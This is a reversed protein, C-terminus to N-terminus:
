SRLCRIWSRRRLCLSLSVAVGYRSFSPSVRLSLVAALETCEGFDVVGLCPHSVFVVLRVKAREDSYLESDFGLYMADPERPETETAAAGRLFSFYMEYDNIDRHGMADTREGYDGPTLSPYSYADCVEVPGVEGATPAGAAAAAEAAEVLAAADEDSLMEWGNAGEVWVTDDEATRTEAVTSKSSQPPMGEEVSGSGSSAAADGGAYEAKSVPEVSNWARLGAATLGATTSEGYGMDQFNLFAKPRGYLYEAVEVPLDAKQTGALMSAWSAHDYVAAGEQAMENMRLFPQKTARLVDMFSACGALPTRVASAEQFNGIVRKLGPQTEPRGLLTVGMMAEAKDPQHTHQWVHFAAVVAMFLTGGEGQALSALTECIHPPLGVNTEVWPGGRYWVSHRIASECPVGSKDPLPATAAGNAFCARASEKIATAWTETPFVSEAQWLAFDPYHIPPPMEREPPPLGKQVNHMALYAENLDTWFIEDSYGDFISHHMGYFFYWKTPTVRLLYFHALPGLGGEKPGVGNHRREMFPNFPEFCGDFKYLEEAIGVAKAEKEADTADSLMDEAVLDREVLPLVFDEVSAVQFKLEGDAKTFHGRLAEHRAHVEWLAAKFWERQFPTGDDGDTIWISYSVTQYNSPVPKGGTPAPGGLMCTTNWGPMPSAIQWCHINRWTLSAASRAPCGCCLLCCRSLVYKRDSTRPALALDYSTESCSTLCSCTLCSCLSALSPLRPRDEASPFRVAPGTAHRPMIPLPGAAAGGDSMMAAVAAAIESVVPDKFLVSTPVDLEFMSKIEGIIAMGSLSNGGYELWSDGLDLPARVKRRVIGLIREPFPATPSDAPADYEQVPVSPLGRRKLKGTATRPLMAVEEIMTPVAYDPLAVQLGARVEQRLTAFPKDYDDFKQIYLCLATDGGADTYSMTGADAM